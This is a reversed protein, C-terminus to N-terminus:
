RGAAAARSAEVRRAAGASHPELTEVGSLFVFLTPPRRTTLADSRRRVQLCQAFAKARQVFSLEQVLAYVDGSPIDELHAESLRHSLADAASGAVEALLARLEAEKRKLDNVELQLQQAHFSSVEIYSCRSM